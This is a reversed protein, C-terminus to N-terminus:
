TVALKLIVNSFDKKVDNKNDNQKEFITEIQEQTKLKYIGFINTKDYILSLIKNYEDDNFVLSYYLIKSYDFENNESESKNINKGLNLNSLSDELISIKDVMLKNKTDTKNNIAIEEM